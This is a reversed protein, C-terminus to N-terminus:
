GIAQTRNFGQGLDMIVGLPVSHGSPTLAMEGAGPTRSNSFNSQEQWMHRVLRRTARVVNPPMVARGAVYVIHLNDKGTVFNVAVGASRRTIEGAELSDISYGFTDFSAGDVAQATLTKAYGAGATEVLSTVSIIPANRVVISRRGGSYVENHTTALLAGCLDEMPATAAAILDRLDEDYASPTGSPLGVALRAEDLGIIFGPDAPLVNYVDPYASANAGTAAWRITHRGSQTTLYSSTYSGTTPNSISPTVTTVGDPLTITLVISTANALAGSTDRTTVALNPLADGLDIAM